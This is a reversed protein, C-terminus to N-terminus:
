EGMPLTREMSHGLEDDTYEVFSVVSDGKNTETNLVRSILSLM